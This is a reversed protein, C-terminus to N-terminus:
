RRFCTLSAGDARVHSFMTLGSLLAYKFLISAGDNTTSQFEFQPEDGVDDVSEVIAVEGRRNATLDFRKAGVTLVNGAVSLAQRPLSAAVGAPVDLVSCAGARFADHYDRMLMGVKAAVDADAGLYSPAVGPAAQCSGSSVSAQQFRNSRDWDIATATATPSSGSRLAVGRQDAISDPENVLDRRLSLLGHPETLDVGGAPIAVFGDAGVTTPQPDKSGNCLGMYTGAVLAVFQKRYDFDGCAPAPPHLAALAQRAGALLRARLNFDPSLYLNLSQAAYRSVDGASTGDARQLTANGALAGPVTTALDRDSTLYPESGGGVDALPTGVAYLGFGALTDADVQQALARRAANAYVNGTSYGVVLVQRGLRLAAAYQRVQMAVTADAGTDPARLAAAFWNSFWDPVGGIGALWGMVRSDRIAGATDAATDLSTAVGDAGNFALAVEPAANTTRLALWLSQAAVAASKLDTTTSNSFAVLPPQAALCAAPAVSAHLLGAIGLVGSGLISKLRM